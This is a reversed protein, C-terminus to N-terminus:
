RTNASSSFRGSLSHGLRRPATADQRLASTISERAASVTRESPMTRDAIEDQVEAQHHTIPPRNLVQQAFPQANTYAPEVLLCNLFDTYPNM